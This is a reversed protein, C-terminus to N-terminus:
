SLDVLERNWAGFWGVPGARGAEGHRTGSPGQDRVVPVSCKLASTQATDKGRASTKNFYSNCTSRPADCGRELNRNRASRQQGATWEHQHYKNM